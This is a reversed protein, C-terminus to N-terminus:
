RSRWAAAFGLWPSADITGVVVIVLLPLALPAAARLLDRAADLTNTQAVGAGLVVGLLVLAGGTQGLALMPVAFVAFGLMLKRRPSM